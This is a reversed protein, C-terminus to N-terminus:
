CDTHTDSKPKKTKKERAISFFLFGVVLQREVATWLGVGFETNKNTEGVWEDVAGLGM